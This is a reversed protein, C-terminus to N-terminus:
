PMWSPYGGTVTIKEISGNLVNVIYLNSETVPCVKADCDHYAIRKGDPSWRPVPDVGSMSQSADPNGFKQKVLQWADQGDANMIYIGDVRAFAIQKGDPSWSPNIGNGIEIDKGTQINLKIMHYEATPYKQGYFEVSFILEQRNSFYSLGHIGNIHYGYDVLVAKEQCNELDVLLIKKADSIIADRDSSVSEIQSYREWKKCERFEGNSNWYSPYGAILAPQGNALAYITKGDASWTPRSLYGPLDLITLNSGDTNVFGLNKQSYDGTQFVIEANPISQKWATQCNTLCLCFSCVLILKVYRTM